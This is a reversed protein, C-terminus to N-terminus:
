QNVAADVKYRMLFKEYIEILGQATGDEKTLPFEHTFIGTRDDSVRLGDANVHLARTSIRRTTGNPEKIVKPKISISVVSQFMATVADALAGPLDPTIATVQGDANTRERELATVVLDKRYQEKTNENTLNVLRNLQQRACEGMVQYDSRVPVGVSRAGLDREKAPFSLAHPKVIRAVYDSANDLVVGGYYDNTALNALLNEMETWNQPTVYDIDQGNLTMTGGGEAVESAIILTPKGRYKRTLADLGAALTTKGFKARSFILACLRTQPSLLTKTNKITLSGIREPM